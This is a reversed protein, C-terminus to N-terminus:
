YAGQDLLARVRALDLRAGFPNVPSKPRGPDAWRIIAEYHSKPLPRDVRLDQPLGLADLAGSNVGRRLLHYATQSLLFRILSTASLAMCRSERIHGIEVITGRRTAPISNWFGFCGGTMTTGFVVVERPYEWGTASQADYFTGFGAYITGDNEGPMRIPQLDITGKVLKAGNSRRYFWEFDEPLPGIVHQIWTIEENSAPKFFSHAEPTLEWCSILRERLAVDTMPIGAIGPMVQSSAQRLGPRLDPVAFGPREAATMLAVLM